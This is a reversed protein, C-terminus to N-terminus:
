LTRGRYILNPKESLFLSESPHEELLPACVLAKKLEKEMCGERDKAKKKMIDYSIDGKSPEYPLTCNFHLLFFLCLGRIILFRDSNLCKKELRNFYRYLQRNLAFPFRIGTQREVSSM